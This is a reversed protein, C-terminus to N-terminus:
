EVISYMAKVFKHISLKVLFIFIDESNQMDSLIASTIIVNFISNKTSSPM